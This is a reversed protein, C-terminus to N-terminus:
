GWQDMNVGVSVHEGWGVGVSGQEGGSGGNVGAAGASGVEGWEGLAARRGGQEECGPSLRQM